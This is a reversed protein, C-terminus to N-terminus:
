LSKKETILFDNKAKKLNFLSYVQSSIFLPARLLAIYIKLPTKSYLLVILFNIIFLGFALSMVYFSVQNTLLLIPLLIVTCLVVMFIPPYMSILGFIMQNLNRKEVGALLIDWATQFNELYTKIWRIRQKKVQSRQTVKEDYTYIDKAYAIREGQLVIYDQLMKDEGLIVGHVAKQLSKSNLFGEFIEKNIVMGSGALTASSRCIFPVYRDMYNHYIEGAADLQAYVTDLNKPLRRTQVVKFGRNLYMDLAGIYDENVYNDPDFILYADHTKDFEKLGYIFSRVKSDLPAKPFLFSVYKNKYKELDDADQNCRDAVVYIQSGENLQCLLSDVLPLCIKYDKYATIIIGYNWKKNEIKENDQIFLSIFDKLLNMFFPIILLLAIIGVICFLIYVM